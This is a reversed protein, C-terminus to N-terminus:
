RKRAQNPVLIISILISRSSVRSELSFHEIENVHAPYADGVGVMRKSSDFIMWLQSEYEGEYLNESLLSCNITITTPRAITIPYQAVLEFM